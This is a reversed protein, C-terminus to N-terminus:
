ACRVGTRLAKVYVPDAARCDRCVGPVKARPNSLTPCGCRHCPRRPHRDTTATTM